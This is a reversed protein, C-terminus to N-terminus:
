VPVFRGADHDDIAVLTRVVMADMLRRGRENGPDMSSGIVPISLQAFLAMRYDDYLADFSYGTVGGAVLGAHYRELLAHEHARRDDTELSEALFYSVDLAGMSRVSLQWDIITVPSGDPHEFFLNDLRLDTHAITTPKNDIIWDYLSSVVDPFQAATELARAPVRAGYREVFGPWVAAYQQESSKYAHNNVPRLWAFEALKPNDWWFAHLAAAADMVHLADAPPCGTIQDRMGAVALDELLLVFSTGAENIDSYYAAPVRLGPTSACERYFCVENLYFGYHVAIGVTEPNPSAIKAILTAPLGVSGKDYTLHLRALLGLIGVGQGVPEVEVAAVPEGLADTLWDPTLDDLSTPISASVRRVTTSSEHLGPAANLKPDISRL